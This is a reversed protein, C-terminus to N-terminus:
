ANADPQEAVATTEILGKGAAIVVVVAATHVPSLVVNVSAVVPPVHLLEFVATTVM